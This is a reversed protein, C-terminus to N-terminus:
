MSQPPILISRATVIDPVARVLTQMCVSPQLLKGGCLQDSRGRLACKVGWALQRYLGVGSPIPVAATCIERARPVACNTAITRRVVRERRATPTRRARPLSAARCTGACVALDRTALRQGEMFSAAALGAHAALARPLATPSRDTAADTRRASSAIRARLVPDSPAELARLAVASPLAIQAELRTPFRKAYLAQRREGQARPIRDAPSISTSAPRCWRVATPLIRHRAPRARQVPISACAHTSSISSSRRSRLVRRAWRVRVAARRIHGVASASPDRRAPAIPSVIAPAHRTTLATARRPPRASTTAACRGAPARATQSVTGRVSTMTAEMVSSPARACMTAACRRARAREPWRMRPSFRRAM